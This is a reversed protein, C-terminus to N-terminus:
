PYFFILGLLGYIVAGVLWSYILFYGAKSGSISKSALIIGPLLLLAILLIDSMDITEINKM